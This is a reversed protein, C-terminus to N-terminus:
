EARAIRLQRQRWHQHKVADGVDGFFAAFIAFAFDNGLEIDFGVQPEEVAMKRTVRHHRAAKAEIGQPLHEAEEQAPETGGSLPSGEADSFDFQGAHHQRGDALDFIDDVELAHDQPLEIDSNSIPKEFGIALGDIGCRIQADAKELRRLGSSVLLMRRTTTVPIPMTELMPLLACSTTAANRSALDPMM